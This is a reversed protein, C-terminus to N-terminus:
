ATVKSNNAKVLDARMCDGCMIQYPLYMMGCRNCKHDVSGFPMGDILAMIDGIGLLPITDVYTCERRRAGSYATKGRKVKDM